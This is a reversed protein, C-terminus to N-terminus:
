RPTDSTEKTTEKVAREERFRQLDEETIHIGEIASSSIISRDLMKRRLVPDKLYPNTELLSKKM